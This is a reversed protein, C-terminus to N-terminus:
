QRWRDQRRILALRALEVHAREIEEHVLAQESALHSRWGIIEPAERYRLLSFFIVLAVLWPIAVGLEGRRWLAVGGQENVNM